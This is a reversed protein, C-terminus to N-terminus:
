PASYYSVIGNYISTAYIELYKDNVLKDFDQANSIFGLEVLVSPMDVMRNVYLDGTKIGRNYMKANKVIENQIKTALYKSEEGNDNMSLNYFTETGTVSVKDIANVHISVFIEANSSKALAVRDQLTPYTDGVRTMIVSAGSNKLKQEVLKAVKIVVSKETVGQRSAGPDKGGHGADLLIIRNKLVSGSQNLLKLYTKSVYGTGGTYKIKAWSGSISQVSVMTGKKLAGVTATSASPGSRVNLSDATVKGALNGLEVPSTVPPTVPTTPISGTFEKNIYGPIGDIKVLYWGNYIGFTEVQASKKFSGIVVSTNSPQSRVNLESATIQVKGTTKGVTDGNTDLFSTYAGSIYHLEGNYNVKLWDGQKEYVELKDGYYVKGVITSSANPESRVNLSDDKVSVVVQGISQSADPVTVGGVGPTLKFKDEMGRAIFQAFQRRTVGSKPMYKNNSGKTIGNYYIAKVYKAISDNNNVDTFVMPKSIYQNVNLDFASVLALSMDDRTLPKFPRFTGDSYGKLLGLKVAREIYGADVAKVDKFSSKKVVIPTSGSAIVLMKAAQYRTLVETPEFKKTNGVEYGKIIKKNYIYEIEQYGDESTTVDSFIQAASAKTSFSFAGMLVLGAIVCKLLKGIM